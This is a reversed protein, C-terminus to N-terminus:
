GIMIGGAETGTAFLPSAALMFLTFPIAEAATLQLQVLRWFHLLNEENSLALGQPEALIYAAIEGTWRIAYALGFFTLLPHQKIWHEMRAAM